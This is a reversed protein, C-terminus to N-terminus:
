ASWVGPLTQVLLRQAVATPAVHHRRMQTFVKAALGPDSDSVHTAAELIAHYLTSRLTADCASDVDNLVDSASQIQESTPNKALGKVLISCTFKDPKLGAARMQSLVDWAHSSKGGRVAADMTTNFTIANPVLGRQRMREIAQFAGDVDGRQAYGKILTNFSVVDSVPKVYSDVETILEGVEEVHDMAIGTALAVNLALCDVTVGWSRMKRLTELSAPWDQRKSHVRLVMMCARISPTAIASLREFFSVARGHEGVEAAFGILCSCTVASPALGDNVLRDYVLLALRYQKQGALQKMASEYFILTRTVDQKIMDDLISEIMQFRGARVACHVLVTYFDILPHKAHRSVELLSVGEAELSVRLEEYLLLARGAFRMSQQERMGDVVEDIIQSPVIRALQFPSQGPWRAPAVTLRASDHSTQLAPKNRRGEEPAAVFRESCTGSSAQQSKTFPTKDMRGAGPCCYKASKPPTYSGTFGKVLFASTLTVVFIVMEMGISQWIDM